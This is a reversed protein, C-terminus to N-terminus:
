YDCDHLLLFVELVPSDAAIPVIFQTVRESYKIITILRDNALILATQLCKQSLANRMWLKVTIHNILKALDKSMSVKLFQKNFTYFLKNFFTIIRCYQLASCTQHDVRKCNAMVSEEKSTRRCSPSLVRHHRIGGLGPFPLLVDSEHVKSM